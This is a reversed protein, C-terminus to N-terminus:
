YLQKSCKSCTTYSNVTSRYLVSDVKANMQAFGRDLKKELASNPNTINGLFEPLSVNPKLSEEVRYVAKDGLSKVYLRFVNDAYKLQVDPLTTQAMDHIEVDKNVDCQFLRWDLISPVITERVDNLWYLLRDRVQGLFSFLLSVDNDKELKFPYESCQVDIRVTGNPSATYTVNKVKGIRERHIKGKNSENYKEGVINAYETRDISTKLQLKHLHAPHFPLLSLVELLSQAKQSDIAGYLPHKSTLPREVGNSILNPLTDQIPVSQRKDLSEIIDARICNPFYKQPNTRRLSHFVTPDSRFLSPPRKEGKKTIRKKCSDKFIRQAKWKQVQFDRIIDNLDVGQGCSRWKDVAVEQIKSKSIRKRPSASHVLEVIPVNGNKNIPANRDKAFFSM